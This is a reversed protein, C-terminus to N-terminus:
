QAVAAAQKRVAHRCRWAHGIANGSGGVHALAESGQYYSGTTLMGLIAGIAEAESLLCAWRLARVLRPFQALIEEQRPRLRCESFLDRRIRGHQNPGPRYLHVDADSVAVLQWSQHRFVITRGIFAAPNRNMMKM